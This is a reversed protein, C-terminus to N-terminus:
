YLTFYGMWTILVSAESFAIFNDISFICQYLVTCLFITSLEYYLFMSLLVSKSVRSEIAPKCTARQRYLNGYKSLNSDLCLLGIVEDSTGSKHIAPQQNASPSSVSSMSGQHQINAFALFHLAKTGNVLHCVFRLINETDFVGTELHGLRWM